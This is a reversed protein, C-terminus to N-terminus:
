RVRKTRCMISFKFYFSIRILRYKGILSVLQQIFQSSMQYVNLMIKKVTSVTEINVSVINPMKEFIRRYTRRQGNCLNGVVM